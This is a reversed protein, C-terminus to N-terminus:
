KTDKNLLMNLQEDVQDYNSNEKLEIDSQHSSIFAKHETIWRALEPKYAESREGLNNVRERLTDDTIDFNILLLKYNYQKALGVVEDYKREIGFDLVVLGNSVDQMKQMFYGLYDHVLTQKDDWNTGPALKDIYRRIKDNSLVTAAYKTQLYQALKSKGSTPVGALCVLVKPQSLDLHHIDNKHIAYIKENM